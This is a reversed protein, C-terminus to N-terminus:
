RALRLRALGDLAQALIVRSQADEGLESVMRRWLSEHTMAGEERLLDWVLAAVGELIVLGGPRLVLIESDLALAESFRALSVERPSARQTPEEFELSHWTERLPDPVGGALAAHLLDAEVYRAALAGGCGELLEALSSLPRELKWQSSSQGVILPLSERLPLRSLSVEDRPASGNRVRDLVLVVSPAPAVAEPSIGLAPLGQDIKRLTGSAMVEVRSIPKPFATVRFDGSDMITLEDTLYAGQRALVTTATSKGAGSPGVLVVTGIGPLNVAGAHLLMRAGALERIIASTIDCSVAYAANAGPAVAVPPEASASGSAGGDGAVAYHRRLTRGEGRGASTAGEGDSMGEGHIAGESHTAGERRTHRWLHTVEGALQEHEADFVLDIEIEGIQLAM